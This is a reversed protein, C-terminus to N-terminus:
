FCGGFGGCGGCGFGAFGRCGFLGSNGCAFWPGITIAPPFFAACGLDDCGFWRHAGFDDGGGFCKTQITNPTTEAQSTAVDSDDSGDQAVCGTCALAASTSLALAFAIYKLQSM